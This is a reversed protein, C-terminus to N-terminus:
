KSEAQELHCTENLVAILTRPGRFEITTLSAPELCFRQMESLPLSLARCVVVRVMLEDTVLLATSTAEHKDKQAEVLSWAREQRDTLARLANPDLFDGDPPGALAANVPAEGLGLAETIEAATEVSAPQPGTQLEVIEAGHERLAAIERALAAVQLRGAASLRGGGATEGHCILTVKM